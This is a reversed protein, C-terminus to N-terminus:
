SFTVLSEKEIMTMEVSWYGLACGWYWDTQLRTTIRKKQALYVKSWRGRRGTERERSQALWASQCGQMSLSLLPRVVTTRWTCAALHLRMDSIRRPREAALLSPWFDTNVGPRGFFTKKPFPLRSPQNCIVKRQRRPLKAASLQPLCYMLEQVVVQSRAISHKSGIPQDTCRRVSYHFAHWTRPKSCPAPVMDLDGTKVMTVPTNSRM